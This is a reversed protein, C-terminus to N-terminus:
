ERSLTKDKEQPNTWDTNGLRCVGFVDCASAPFLHEHRVTHGFPVGSRNRPDVLSHAALFNRISIAVGM